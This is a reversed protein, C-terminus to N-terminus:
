GHGRRPLARVRPWLVWVVLVGAVIEGARGVPLLDSVSSWRGLVVSVIGGNLLGWAAWLRRDASVQDSFPLIWVAVGLALQCVWGLLMGEVHLPRLSFPVTPMGGGSAALRWAGATAGIAFHVLAARVFWISIRAM